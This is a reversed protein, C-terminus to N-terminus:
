CAFLWYVFVSSCIPLRKKCGHFSLDHQIISFKYAFSDIAVHRRRDHANQRVFIIGMKLERKMEWKVLRFDCLIIVAIYFTSGNYMLHSKSYFHSLARENMCFYMLLTQALIIAIDVGFGVIFMRTFSIWQAKWSDGHTNKESEVGWLAEWKNLVLSGIRAVSCFFFWHWKSLLSQGRTFIFHLCSSFYCSWQHM